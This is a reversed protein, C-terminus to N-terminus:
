EHRNVRLHQVADVQVAQQSKQQNVVLVTDASSSQTEFDALWALYDPLMTDLLKRCRLEISLGNPM